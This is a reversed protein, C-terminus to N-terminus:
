FSCCNNKNVSFVVPCSVLRVSYLHLTSILYVRNACLFRSRTVLFCVSANRNNIRRLQSTKQKPCWTFKLSYCEDNGIYLCPLYQYTPVNTVDSCRTCWQVAKVAVLVMTNFFIVSKKWIISFQVKNLYTPVLLKPSVGM